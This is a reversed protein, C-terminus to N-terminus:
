CKLAHYPSFRCVRSGDSPPPMSSIGPLLPCFAPTDTWQMTSTCMCVRALKSVSLGFAHPPIQVGLELPTFCCDWWSNTNIEGHSGCLKFTHTDPFKPIWGSQTCTTLVSGDNELSRFFLILSHHVNVCSGWVLSWDHGASHSALPGSSM